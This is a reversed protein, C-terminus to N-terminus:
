ATSDDTRGVERQAAEILESLFDEPTSREMVLPLEDPDRGLTEWISIIATATERIEEDTVPIDVEM